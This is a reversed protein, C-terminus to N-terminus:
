WTPIIPAWPLLFNIFTASQIQSLTVLDYITLNMTCKKKVGISTTVYLGVVLYHIVGFKKSAIGKSILFLFQVLILFSNMYWGGPGKIITHYITRLCWFRAHIPKYVKLDKLLFFLYKKGNLIIM